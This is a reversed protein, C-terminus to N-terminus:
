VSESPTKDPEVPSPEPPEKLGREIDKSPTAGVLNPDAIGGGVAQPRILNGITIGIPMAGYGLALLLPNSLDFRMVAYALGILASFKLVMLLVYLRRRPGGALIARGLYAGLWLNLTAILGGIAVGLAARASGLAAAGISLCIAVCGVSIISTVMTADLPLPRGEAGNTPLESSM